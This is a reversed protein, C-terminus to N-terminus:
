LSLGEEAVRDRVRGLRSAANASPNQPLVNEVRPTITKSYKPTRPYKSAPKHPNIMNPYKKPMHDSNDLVAPSDIQPVPVLNELLTKQDQPLQDAPIFPGGDHNKTMLADMDRQHAVFREAGGPNGEPMVRSKREANPVEAFAQTQLIAVTLASIFLVPMTSFGKKSNKM